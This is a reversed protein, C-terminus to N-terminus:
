IVANEQPDNIAPDFYANQYEQMLTIDRQLHNVFGIAIALVIWELKSYYSVVGVDLLLQVVMLTKFLNVLNRQNDTLSYKGLKLLHYILVIYIMMYFIGGPIGTTAFVEAYNNHAYLGTASYIPFHNLGIGLLPHTLTFSIGERIMTLRILVSAESGGALVAEAGLLRRMLVTDRLLSATYVGFLIVGILMVIAVMPKRGLEKGYTLFFWVAVLVAMAIFSKRSGSAIVFRAGFLILGAIVAKLLVSRTSRFYHLLVMIGYLIAIGFANANLTLGALRSEEGEVEARQFDGTIVAFVAIIAVGVLVSFLLWFVCRTNKAYYSVIVAMVVVQVLTRVREIFFGPYRVIPFGLMGWVTFLIFCKIEAPVFFGGRLSAMVFVVVCIAGLGVVLYNFGTLESVAVAGVLFPMLLFISLPLTEKPQPGYPWPSSDDNLSAPYEVFEDNIEIQNKM